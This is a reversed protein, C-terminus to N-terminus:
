KRKLPLKKKTEDPYDQESLETYDPRTDDATAIEPKGEARTVNRAIYNWDDKSLSKNKVLKECQTPSILTRTYMQDAPLLKALEQTVLAEDGWARNGARGRVLKYGPIADGRMLMSLAHKSLAESWQKLLPLVGLCSAIASPDLKAGLTIDQIGAATLCHRALAGCFAKIKCFRCAKACPRQYESVDDGARYRELLLNCLEAGSRYEGRKRELEIASLNCVSINDLRPQVIHLTVSTIQGFDFKDLAALAYIEAQPNNVADVRVGVGFKLDIVHLTDGALIIADSTGVADTEGTVGALALEQEIFLESGACLLSQVYDTYVRVPNSIDDLSVGVSQWKAKIDDTIVLEAGSKYANLILEALEHACTGEQAYASTTDAYDSSLAVSAPCALWRHASSPSFIAHKKSM